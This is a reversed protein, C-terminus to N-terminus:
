RLVRAFARGEVKRGASLANQSEASFCFLRRSLRWHLCGRLSGLCRAVGAVLLLQSSVTETSIRGGSSAFGVVPLGVLVDTVSLGTGTLVGQFVRGISNCMRGAGAGNAGGRACLWGDGGSQSPLEKSHSGSWHSTVLWSLRSVVYTLATM